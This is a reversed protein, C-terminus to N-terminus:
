VSHPQPSPPSGPSSSLAAMTHMFAQHHTDHGCHLHLPQPQAVGAGRGVGMRTSLRMVLEATPPRTLVSLVLWLVTFGKYRRATQLSNFANGGGAHTWWAWERESDPKTSSM